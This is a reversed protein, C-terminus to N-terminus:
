KELWYKKANASIIYIFIRQKAIKMWQFIVQYIIDVTAIRFGLAFALSGTIWSVM